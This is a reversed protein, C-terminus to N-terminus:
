RRADRVRIAGRRTTEEKSPELNGFRILNDTGSICQHGLQAILRGGNRQENLKLM